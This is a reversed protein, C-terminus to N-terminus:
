KIHKTIVGVVFVGMVVSSSVVVVVTGCGVVVVVVDCGM